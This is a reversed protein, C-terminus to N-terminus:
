VLHWLICQRIATCVHFRYSYCSDGKWNFKTANGGSYIVDDARHFNNFNGYHYFLMGNYRCLKDNWVFITDAGCEDSVCM